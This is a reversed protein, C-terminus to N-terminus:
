TSTCRGGESYVERTISIAFYAASEGFRRINLGVMSQLEGQVSVSPYLRIAKALIRRASEVEGAAMRKRAMAVCRMAEDKNADM